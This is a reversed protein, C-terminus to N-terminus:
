RKIRAANIIEKTKEEGFEKVLSKRFIKFAAVSKEKLESGNSDKKAERVKVIHEKKLNLLIAKEDQSLAYKSVVREVYKKSSNVVFRDEKSQANINFAFCVFLIFMIRKKMM